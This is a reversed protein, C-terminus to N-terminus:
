MDELERKLRNIEEVQEFKRKPQRESRARKDLQNIKKLLQKKELNINIQDDLSNDNEIKIDGVQIVINEWVDDLNLGKLMIKLDNSNKWESEILKTHYVGLRVSSGYEMVFIMNQNIMKAIKIINASDHNKSKLLLHIVFFAKITIGEEINITQASIENVVYIKSIDKDFKEIAKSNMGYKKYIASKPLQKRIETTKPLGLM